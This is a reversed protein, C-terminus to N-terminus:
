VGPFQALFRVDNETFLRIDNIARKVMVLRELGMGWAFGSYEEPDIGGSRLVEPHVMGAGLIELWGTRKCISCGKGGCMICEVDVELGPEVFPFYSPRFRTRVERGFLKRLFQEMTTFLDGFNVHKDIYLGDVQHFFVHSRASIAENRYVRGPAIIRIPPKSREMVRAQINSTHTRLLMDPSIYFTDQMDRAPHDKDMNLAEFNYYDSEIHPGYQVSFGMSIFIDIIQDLEQNLIHKRGPFRRRGPLTVDVVEAALSALEESETLALALQNCRSTIEEKLDNILKGVVPREEATVEKLRQMLQQLPGKRGLYKVRLAELDATTRAIEFDNHAQTRIETIADPLAM